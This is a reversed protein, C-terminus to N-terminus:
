YLDGEFKERTSLMKEGAYWVVIKIKKLIGGQARAGKSGHTFVARGIIDEAVAPGFDSSLNL